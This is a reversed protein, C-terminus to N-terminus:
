PWPVESAYPLWGSTLVDLLERIEPRIYVTALVPRLPDAPARQGSLAGQCTALRRGVPAAGAASPISRTKPERRRCRPARAGHRRARSRLIVHQM